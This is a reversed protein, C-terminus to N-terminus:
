SAGDASGLWRGFANGDNIYSDDDFWWIFETEVRDLMQRMMPCKNLNVPSLILHDIEGEARLSEVYTVTEKEIANAGVVVRCEPPPCNRRISELSRRALRPYDGYLLVCITVKTMRLDRTNGM